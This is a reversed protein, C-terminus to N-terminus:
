FGAEKLIMKCWETDGPYAAFKKPWYDPDIYKLVMAIQEFNLKDLFEIGSDCNYLVWPSIKGSVIKHVIVNPPAYLFYHNFAAGAGIAWEEAVKIAREVADQPNEKRLYDFLFEEYYSDKTWQDLKKNNKIVWVIFQDIGIAKIAHLYRGFKVFARYYPSNVFDQYTKSKASGQTLEFFKLYARFGIQVGKENEQQIRRKPECLHSSLTSEKTFSKDCYRCKYSQNSASTM